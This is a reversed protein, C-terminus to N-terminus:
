EGDVRYLAYDDNGSQSKVTSFNEEILVLQSKTDAIAKGGEQRAEIQLRTLETLM